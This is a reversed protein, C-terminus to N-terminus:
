GQSSCTPLKRLSSRPRHLVFSSVDTRCAVSQAVLHRVEKLGLNTIARVEKIVKIKGKADFGTLKVDFETKEAAPAEEEAAAGGGGGPAAGVPMAMAAPALQADSINLKDKLLEVLDAVELLNLSAIEDVIGVIKPSYEKDQPAVCCHLCGSARSFSSAAM